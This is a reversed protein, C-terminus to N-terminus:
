GPNFSPLHWDVDVFPRGILLPLQYGMKSHIIGLWLKYGTGPLWSTLSFVALCHKSIYCLCSSFMELCQGAQKKTGNAEATDLLQLVACNAARRRCKKFWKAAAAAATPSSM